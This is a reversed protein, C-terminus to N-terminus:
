KVRDIWINRFGLAKAFESADQVSRFTGIRIKYHKNGRIFHEKKYANIGRKNLQEIWYNAEDPDNTSFVEISYQEDQEVIRPQVPPPKPVIPSDKKPKTVVITKSETTPKKPTIDLGKEMDEKKSDVVPKPLEEKKPETQEEKDSVAPTVQQVITDKQEPHTTPPVKDKEITKTVSLTDKSEFKQPIFYNQYVFYGGGVLLLLLALAIIYFWFAPVFRRKKEEPLKIKAAKKTQDSIKKVKTKKIERKEKEKRPIAWPPVNTEPIEGTKQIEQALVESPKSVDMASIDIEVPAQQPMELGQNLDKQLKEKESTPIIEVLEEQKRESIKAERKELDDLLKQKFEDDIEKSFENEDFDALHIEFPVDVISESDVVVTVKEAKTEETPFIEASEMEASPLEELPTPELDELPEVPKLSVEEPKEAELKEKEFIDWISKPEKEPLSSKEYPIAEEDEILGAKKYPVPGKTSEEVGAKEYPVPGKASEEIGAKKYLETEEDELLGAKRYPVPEDEDEILGSKKYPIPGTQAFDSDSLMSEEASPFKEGNEETIESELPVKEKSDIQTQDEAIFDLESEELSGAAELDYPLEGPYKELKGLMFTEDDPDSPEFGGYNEERLLEPDIPISM